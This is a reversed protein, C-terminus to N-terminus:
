NLNLNKFKEIIIYNLSELNDDISSDICIADVM